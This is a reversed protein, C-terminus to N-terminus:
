AARRRRRAALAGTFFALHGEEDGLFGALTARLDRPVDRSLVNAYAARAIRENAQMAVLAGRLGLLTGAVTQGGTVLGFVDPAPYPPEAGLGQVIGGLREIHRRHDNRFMVASDRLHGGPLAAIFLGYAHDADIDIQILARLAGVVPAHPM